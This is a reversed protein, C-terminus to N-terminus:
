RSAQKSRKASSIAPTDLATASPASRSSDYVSIVVRKAQEDLEPAALIATVVDYRDDVYGARRLITGKPVGCLKEVMPLATVRPLTVGRAWESVTAQNIELKKALDTQTFGAAEYVRRFEASLRGGVPQAGVSQGM